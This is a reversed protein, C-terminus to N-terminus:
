RQSCCWGADKVGTGLAKWFGKFSGGYCWHQAPSGEVAWALQLCSSSSVQLPPSPPVSLRILERGVWDM